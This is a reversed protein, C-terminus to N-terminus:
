LLKLIEEKFEEESIVGDDKLKRLKEIKRKIADEDNEVVEVEGDENEEKEKIVEIDMYKFYAILLLIFSISLFDCFFVLIGAAMFLRKSVKFNKEYLYLHLILLITSSLYLALDIASYVINDIRVSNLEAPTLKMGMDLYISELWYVSGIISLILMVVSISNLVIAAIILGKKTKNM